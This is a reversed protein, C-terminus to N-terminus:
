SFTDIESSCSGESNCLCTPLSFVWVIFGQPAWHTWAETCTRHDLYARDIQNTRVAFARSRPCYDVYVLSLYYVDSRLPHCVCLYWVLTFRFSASNCFFPVSLIPTPKCAGLWLRPGRDILSRCLFLPFFIMIDLLVEGCRGKSVSLIRMSM